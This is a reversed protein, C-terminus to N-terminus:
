FFFHLPSKRNRHTQLIRKNNQTNFSERYKISTTDSEWHKRARACVRVCPCYSEVKVLVLFPFSRLPSVYASKGAKINFVLTEEVNFLKLGGKGSPASWSMNNTTIAM